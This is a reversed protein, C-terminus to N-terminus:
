SAHHHIMDHMMAALERQIQSQIPDTGAIEPGDASSIYYETGPV